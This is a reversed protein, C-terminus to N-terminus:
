DAKIGADKIMIVKIVKGMTAMESKVFAALKEPSSGVVESGANSFKEKVDARNLALVIEQNLRKIITAPTKAPAFIGQTQVAVYGPLGSAAITPLDPVLASPEASAVALARLRGTKMHPMVAPANAFMLEVEGGILANVAPGAGKYAIRVMNVGAMAKFLEGARHDFAGTPGSAYNLVGPKAKALAILEKVSKVPLPPHVVLIGPTSVALTIPSFDRVPDFPVNDRLFPLLWHSSGSLLLTYGDPPAKSVIEGQIIAGPRNDAIVQQGLPGSIGQAIIRTAFDAGGGASGAVIRIPKNPYDQGSAVGTGLVMLGVSFMGVILRAILM